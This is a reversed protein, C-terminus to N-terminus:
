ERPGYVAEDLDEVPDHTYAGALFSSPGGQGVRGLVVQWL